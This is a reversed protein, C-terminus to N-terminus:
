VTREDWEFDQVNERVGALLRDVNVLCWCDLFWSIVSRNAPLIDVSAASLRTLVQRIKRHYYRLTLQFGAIYSILSVSYLSAYSM